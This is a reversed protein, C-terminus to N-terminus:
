KVRRVIVKDVEQRIIGLMFGSPISSNLSGLTRVVDGAAFFSRGLIMRSIKAQTACLSTIYFADPPLETVEPMLGKTRLQQLIMSVSANKPRTLKVLDGYDGRHTM